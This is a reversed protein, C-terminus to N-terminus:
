MGPNIESSNPPLFEGGFNESEGKVCRMHVLWKLPVQECSIGICESVLIHGAAEHTVALLVVDDAFQGETIYTHDAGKTSRRHLQKDLKYLVHAGVGQIEKARELWTEMVACAYM